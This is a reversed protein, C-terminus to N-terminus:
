INNAERCRFDVVHAVTREANLVICYRQVLSPKAAGSLPLRVQPKWVITECRLGTRMPLFLPGRIYKHSQARRKAM